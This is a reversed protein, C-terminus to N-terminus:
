WGLHTQLEEVLRAGMGEHTAVTPHYDCGIGVWEVNIDAFAVELDGADHRLAVVKDLYGAVMTAEAGSLSPAVSLIFAQPYVERLHALFDAYAPVFVNEPPDGDTSFDNTGLNIVVVDPQWAFGWASGPDSPVARDYIKPMPDQVDDGYNHVMGKGSWAVASLEAGVARAAFAAYTLYHNETDASFNCPNAGENGYGCTISDGIVEIRRTVPPPALLEGELEVGLFATEGFFGETRRYLEITHEGPALGAALPYTQEGPTTQLRPQVEGDVVVTFFQANDDLTVSAGTGNFRFVAGSGSWGMRVRAPDSDDYRGVFHVEPVGPDVGTTSTGESTSTSDEDVGTTSDPAQTTTPPLTPDADGTTPPDVTGGGTTSSGAPGSTGDGTSDSASGEGGGGSSTCAITLLAPILVSLGYTRM